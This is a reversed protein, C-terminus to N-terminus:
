FMGKAQFFPNLVGKFLARFAQQFPTSLVNSPGQSSRAIVRTRGVGKWHGKLLREICNEERSRVKKRRDLAVNVIGRLGDNLRVPLGENVNYRNGFFFIM